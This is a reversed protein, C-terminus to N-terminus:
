MHAKCIFRVYSSQMHVKCIFKVCSSQMNFLFIYITIYIIFVTKFCIKYWMVESKYFIFNILTKILKQYKINKVQNNCNINHM